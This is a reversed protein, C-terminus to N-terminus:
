RLDELDTWQQELEFVMTSSGLHEPYVALIEDVGTASPSRVAQFGRGHAAEGIRRTLRRDPAVLDDPEIHLHRRVSPDTLDLVTTLSLTVSWLERPLLDAVDLQQRQAQQTLEAVVCPRTLCLYLMPFSHPPNFRGGQRRAGEGSRPDFGPAQNRYGTGEFALGRVGSLLAPDFEAM